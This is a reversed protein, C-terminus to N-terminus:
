EAALEGIAAAISPYAMAPPDSLPFWRVADIPHAPRPDGGVLECAYALVVIPMGFFSEDYAGILHHVRVDVGMESRCERLLTSEITDGANVFGGPADWTDTGPRRGLLMVRESGSGRLILAEASVKANQWLVFGCAVCAPHDGSAGPIPRIILGGACRPCFRLNASM